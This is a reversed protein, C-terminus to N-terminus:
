GSFGKVSISTFPIDSGVSSRPCKKLNTESLRFANRKQKKGLRLKDWIPSRLRLHALVPPFSSGLWVGLLDFNWTYTYRCTNYGMIWHLMGNFIVCSNTETYKTDVPLITRHSGNPMMHTSFLEAYNENPHKMSHDSVIRPYSPM